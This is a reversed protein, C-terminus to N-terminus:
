SSEYSKVRIGVIMWWLAALPGLWLSYESLSLVLITFLIWWSGNLKPNRTLGYISVFVWMLGAVIGFEVAIREPLSHLGWSHTIGKPIISPTYTLELRRGYDEIGRTITDTSFLKGGRPLNDVVEGINFVLLPVILLVSVIIPRWYIKYKKFIWIGLMVGLVIVLGLVASRSGTFFLGIVTFPVLWRFRTTLLYVTGITLLSGAPNANDLLGAQRGPETLGEFILVLSHLGLLPIIWQLIDEENCVLYLLGFPLIWGVHYITVGIHGGEWILSGPITLIVSLLLLLIPIFILKPGIDRKGLGVAIGLFIWGLGLEIGRFGHTM